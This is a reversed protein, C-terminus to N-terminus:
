FFGSILCNASRYMHSVAFGTKIFRIWNYILGIPRRLDDLPGLVKMFPRM